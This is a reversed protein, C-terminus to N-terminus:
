KNEKTKEYEELEKEYNEVFREFDPEKISAGCAYEHGGGYGEIGVLAKELVKPLIVESGRLSCKVEGNSARGIVIKMRPHRYLVENALEKTYSNKTNYRYVFLGTEKVKNAKQEADELIQEYEKYLKEAKKFIWKGPESTQDLIELPDKVQTLMKIAKMTDSTPGKIVFSFIKVLQGLRSNFLAEEPKNINEPLLGPHNKRFSNAFPPFFWDGICGVASVWESKKTVQYTLYAVCFNDKPESIRPNFYKVRKNEPPYPGHHDIWIIPIKTNNVFEDDLMPVDLIFVKDPNYEEVRPLFSGDVTPKAKVMVYNGEKKYLYLQLLSTMGDPDDHFLFLPNTCNDLEDRIEQLQQESLAM